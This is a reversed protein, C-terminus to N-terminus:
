AHVRSTPLSDSFSSCGAKKAYVQRKRGGRQWSRNGRHECVELISRAESDQKRATFSFDQTESSSTLITQPTTPQPTRRYEHVEHVSREEGGQRRAVFSKEPANQRRSLFLYLNEWLRSNIYQLFNWKSVPLKPQGNGTVKNEGEYPITSFIKQYLITFIAQM